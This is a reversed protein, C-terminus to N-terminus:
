STTMAWLDPDGLKEDKDIEREPEIQLTSRLDLAQATQDQWVRRHLYIGLRHDSSRGTARGNM